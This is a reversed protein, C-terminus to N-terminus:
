SQKELELFRHTHPTGYNRTLDKGIPVYLVNVVRLVVSV